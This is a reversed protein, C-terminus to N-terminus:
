QAKRAKLLRLADKIDGSERLAQAAADTGQQNVQTVTKKPGSVLTKPIRVVKKKKAETTTAQQDYLWAKRAMLILRHDGASSIEENSFGTNSLYEAIGSREATATEENQWEPLKSLLVEQEAMLHERQAAENEAAAQQVWNQYQGSAQARVNQIYENAEQQKIKLASFKAPDETELTGWDIDSYDSLLAQSLNEVLTSATTFQELTQEQKQQQEQQLTKVKEKASSLISEAADEMQARAKLDSLSYVVEEGNVKGKVQLSEFWDPDIEQGQSESLYSVLDDVSSIVDETEEIPEETSAEVDEQPAEEVVQEAPEETTQVEQPEEVEGHFNDGFHQQALLSLSPQQEQEAPPATETEM